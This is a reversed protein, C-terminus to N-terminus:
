GEGASRLEALLEAATLGCREGLAARTWEYWGVRRAGAPRTRVCRGLVRVPGPLPPLLVAARRALAGRDPLFVEPDVGACAARLRWRQDAFTYGAELALEILSVGTPPEPTATAAMATVTGVRARARASAGLPKGPHPSGSAGNPDPRDAPHVVSTTRSASASLARAPASPPGLGSRLGSAEPQTSRALRPLRSIRDHQTDGAEWNERRPTGNGAQPASLVGEPTIWM